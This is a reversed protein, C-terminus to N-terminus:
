VPVKPREFGYIYGRWTQTDAEDEYHLVVTKDYPTVVEEAFRMMVRAKDSVAIYECDATYFSIDYFM